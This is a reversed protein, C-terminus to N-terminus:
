TEPRLHGARVLQRFGDVDRVGLLSERSGRRRCLLREVGGIEFASCLLDADRELNVRLAGFRQLQPVLDVCRALVQLTTADQVIAPVLGNGKEWDIRLEVTSTM